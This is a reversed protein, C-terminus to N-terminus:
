SLRKKAEDPVEVKTTGVDKIEVTTTRDVERDNGNFSVSGQVRTEYKSLVGDKVWFKVSGKAGTYTPGGGGGGGGGRGGFSMLAKAADETLDGVIADGDKKLEKAKDALEAAEVAPTKYNQLMRGVFRVPNQRDESSAAEEASVWGDDTKIAGKAGKVVAVTTNDGRTMTLHTIGDKETKGETPGARFRGGGGGGGGGGANANQTSSKWSYNASDALKKAAAKLDDKPGDAALLCVGSALLATVLVLSKM